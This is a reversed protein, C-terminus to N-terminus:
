GGCRVWTRYVGASHRIFLRDQFTLCQVGRLRQEGDHGVDIHALPVVLRRFPNLRRFAGASQVMLRQVRRVRGDRGRGEIGTLSLPVILGM